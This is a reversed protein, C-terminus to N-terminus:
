IMITINNNNNNNNNSNNNSCTTWPFQDSQALQLEQVTVHPDPLYLRVLVHVSGDGAYPPFCHTPSGYTISSQEAPTLHGPQDAYWM